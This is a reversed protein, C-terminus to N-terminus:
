CDYDFLFYSATCFNCTHHSVFWYKVYRGVRHSQDPSSLVPPTGTIYTGTSNQCSLRSSCNVVPKYRMPLLPASSCLRSQLPGSASDAEDISSSQLGQSGDESRRKLHLTVRSLATRISTSGRSIASATATVALQCSNALGSGHIHLATAVAKLSTSHHHSSTATV